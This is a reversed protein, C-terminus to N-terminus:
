HSSMQEFHPLRVCTYRASVKLPIFDHTPYGAYNACRSLAVYRFCQNAVHAVLDDVASGVFLPKVNGVTGSESHAAERDDIKGASML